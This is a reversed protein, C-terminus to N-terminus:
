RASIELNDFYAISDAKTWLGIKGKLYMKDKWEILLRDDLYGAITEARCEVRITYWLDKQLKVAANKLCQRNGAVYRYLRFNNELVNARIVYYAKPNQFRFILGACADVIGSLMKCKVRAEFDSFVKTSVISGPFDFNKSTQAYVNPRSPATDDRLVTWAGYFPAFGGAPGGPADADFNFTLEAGAPVASMKSDEDGYSPLPHTRACATVVMM